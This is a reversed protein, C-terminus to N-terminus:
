EWVNVMSVDLVVTLSEEELLMHHFLCKMQIMERLRRIKPEVKMWHMVDNMLRVHALM